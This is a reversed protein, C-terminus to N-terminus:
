EGQGDTDTLARVCLGDIKKCGCVAACAGVLCVAIVIAVILITLIIKM